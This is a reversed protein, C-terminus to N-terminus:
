QSYGFIFNQNPQQPAPPPFVADSQPRPPLDNAMPMTMGPSNWSASTAPVACAAPPPVAMGPAPPPVAIAPAPTMITAPVQFYPMATPYGPTHVGVPMPVYPNPVGYPYYHPYPNPYPMPPYPFPLPPMPPTQNQLMQIQQQLMQMQRLLVDMQQSMQQMQAQQDRMVREMEQNHINTAAQIKQVMVGFVV